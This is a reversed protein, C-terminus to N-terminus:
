CPGSAFSYATVRLGRLGPSIDASMKLTPDNRANSDVYHSGDKRVSIIKSQDLCGTIVAFGSTTAQVTSVTYVVSGIGAVPGAGITSQTDQVVAASALASMAPDLKNQATTRADSQLFESFLRMSPRSVSPIDAPLNVDVKLGGYTNTSHAVLALPGDTTATTPTAAPRTTATTSPSSGGTYVPLGAKAGSGCGTLSVVLGAVCVSVAVPHKVNTEEVTTGSL